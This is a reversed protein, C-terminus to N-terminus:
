ALQLIPLLGPSERKSTLAQQLVEVTMERCSGCTAGCDTAQRLQKLNRVGDDVAKRIDSDTVANCICVYM